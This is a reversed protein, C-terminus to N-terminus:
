GKKEKRIEALKIKIKAINLGTKTLEPVSSILRCKNLVKLENRTVCILNEINLNNKDGDAFIIVSGKPIKKKHYQEWVVRHKLNWRKQKDGENSVKIVTYGETNIRESSVPKWNKPKSGKKFSTRNAGMYGKKGKNWPIFGKKFQGLTGTNIKKRSLLSSLKDVTMDLDYKKNFIEVIEKYTKGPAIERLFNIIDDTYKKM